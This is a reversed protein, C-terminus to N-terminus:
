KKITVYHTDDAWSCSTNVSPYDLEQLSANEDTESRLQYYGEEEDVAEVNNGNLGSLTELVQYFYINEKKCQKIAKALVTWARRQAPNLDIKNQYYEQDKMRVERYSYRNLEFPGVKPMMQLSQNDKKNWINM